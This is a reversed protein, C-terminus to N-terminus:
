PTLEPVVATDSEPPAALPPLEASVGAGVAAPSAGDLWEQGVQWVAGLALALVVAGGLQSLRRRTSGPVVAGRRPPRHEVRPGTPARVSPSRRRIPPVIEPEAGVHHIHVLNRELGNWVSNLQQMTRFQDQMESEFRRLREFRAQCASCADLHRRLLSTRSRSLRGDVFAELYRDLDSCQMAREGRDVRSRGTRYRGVPPDVGLQTIEMLRCAPAVPKHILTFTSRQYLRTQQNVIPLQWPTRRGDFM